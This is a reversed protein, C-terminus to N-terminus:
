QNTNLAPTLRGILGGIAPRYGFLPDGPTTETPHIPCISSVVAGAGLARAVALERIAPYAKGRIQTTTYNGAADKQCLQTGSNLAGVACDCSGTYRPLTCDKPAALPFVCAFQLDSKHTTWERGNIPDCDDAATPPCSSAARVNESPVMHFDAGRFDGHIPDNGLIATWDADSLAAKQPSDPDAPNAQLLQHPVGTIVTFVVQAATRPGPTLHCLEAGASTPLSAAFLPSVCNANADLQGIYNGAADHEHASDPVTTSSLARTYREIPFQPDLGFRRKMDFFRVNLQDDSPDLWGEITSPPDAPCEDAFTPATSSVFACSTCEIDNPGTTLPNAPDQESCEITGEPPAATPSGPFSGNEFAWGQAGITMPDVTSDNEDTLVVVAVASDPRLFDHRQQLITADIGILAAQNATVVISGYPDPQVLFRYWSELQAEYGCGHENVGSVMAQFDSILTASDSIAPVPPPAEGANQPVPPFWALFNSPLADAVAHEDAGTRNVLEGRDDDHANLAPNAPNTATTSCQDGGRGGLSSTVIAVHIDQVPPFQLHGQACQANQSPGLVNGGAAVCSPSVLSQIMDPVASQLLAQKDGMSSSNDIMFLIDLKTVPGTPPPVGGEATGDLGGFVFGDYGGNGADPAVAAAEAAVGADAATADLAGEPAADGPSERATDTTRGGCALVMPLLALFPLIRTM